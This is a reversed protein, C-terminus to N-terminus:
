FNWATPIWSAWLYKSCRLNRDSDNPRFGLSSVPSIPFQRPLPLALLTWLPLGSWIPLHCTFWGPLKCVLPPKDPETLYVTCIGWYCMVRELRLRSIPGLQPSPSRLTPPAYGEELVPTLTPNLNVPLRTIEELFELVVVENRLLIYHEIDM